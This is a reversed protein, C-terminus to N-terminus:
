PSGIGQLFPNNLREEGITTSPGHGPYVAAAEPLAFLRTKIAELLARGDSTPFDTRGVSGAFLTDGSLCIGEEAQYFCAGGPSHGPTHLVQFTLDGLVFRDEDEFIGRPPPARLKRGALYSLNLSPDAPFKEEERHILFDCHPFAGLLEAVGAIHDVHAHTLLIKSIRWGGEKIFNLLPHPSFGPDIVWGERSPNWGLFYANTM